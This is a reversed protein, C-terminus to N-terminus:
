WKQISSSQNEAEIILVFSQGDCKSPVKFGVEVKQKIHNKIQYNQTFLTWDVM